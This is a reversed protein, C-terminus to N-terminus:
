RRPKNFCFCRSASTEFEVVTGSLDLPKRFPLPKFLSITRLADQMTYLPMVPGSGSARKIGHRNLYDANEEQIKASDQLMVATVAATAPTCYIPANFGQKVLNPINGCHDTHAHSLILADVKTPDFDFCCNIREAEARPGQFLGCDLIYTKGASRVEHLSGTVTRTAGHFHIDM